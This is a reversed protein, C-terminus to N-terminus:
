RRALDHEIAKLFARQSWELDNVAVAPTYFTGTLRPRNVLMKNPVIVTAMGSKLPELRVETYSSDAASPAGVLRTNAFLAFVDLAELCAGTCQGPVIVYVPRTLAPPDGPLDEARDAASIDVARSPEVYFKDDRAQAAMMGQSIARAEAALAGKEQEDLRVAQFATHAINDFSARWWIEQRANAVKIRREVRAQGWLAQALQVGWVPDGGLNDRLDIVLADANLYRQRNGQLEALMAGYAARQADDPQFTPLSIWHLGARPQSLGLPLTPGNFSSTRQQQAAEDMVRWELTLRSERGEDIFICQVPLTIFPNGQDVFVDRAYAWAPGPGGSRQGFGFVNNEVLKAIPKGDCDNIRAGVAPGGPTTASVFMNDGRWATSFGPWRLTPTPVDRLLVGARGDRILASFHQLAAAYGANDRVQAALVLAADRAKDLNVAFEPNAPDHVGPHNDLTVYYAAEIDAIAAQKWGDASLTPPAPTTRSAPAAPAAHATTVAMAATAAVVCALSRAGAQGRLRRSIHRLTDHLTSRM